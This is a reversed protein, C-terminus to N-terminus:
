PSAKMIDLASQTGALYATKLAVELSGKHVEVFDESDLGVVELSNIHLHKKAIDAMQKRWKEDIM